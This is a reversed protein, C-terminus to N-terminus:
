LVLGERINEVVNMNELSEFYYAELSLDMKLLRQGSADVPELPAEADVEVLEINFDKLIIIQDLRALQDVFRSIQNYAGLLVIRLPSVTHFDHTIQPANDLTIFRLGYKKGLQTMQENLDSAQPDNSFTALTQTLRDGLAITQAEYADFNAVRAALADFETRLEVEQHHLTARTQLQVKTDLLLSVGVIMMASIMCVAVKIKTPWLAINEFNLEKM